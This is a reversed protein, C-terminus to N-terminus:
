KALRKEFKYLSENEVSLWKEDAIDEVLEHWMAALDAYQKARQERLQRKRMLRLYEIVATNVVADISQHMEVALPEIESLLKPSLTITIM